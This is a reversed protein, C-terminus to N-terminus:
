LIQGPFLIYCIMNLKLHDRPM